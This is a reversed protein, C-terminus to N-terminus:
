RATPVSATKLKATAPKLSGLYGLEGEVSVGCAHALKVVERSVNVNYDFDSPTKGDERLSGDMMVSSFGFRIASMCVAPSVGHDQHM